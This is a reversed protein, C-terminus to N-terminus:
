LRRRRFWIVLGLILIVEPILLALSNFAAFTKEPILPAQYLDEVKPRLLIRDERDALYYVANMVLDENYLAGLLRNTAFDIDGFVVVRTEKGSAAQWQVSAGLPFPGRGRRMWGPLATEAAPSGERDEEMEIRSTRDSYLFGRPDAGRLVLPRAGSLVVGTRETLGQVVPHYDTFRNVIPETGKAESGFLSADEDVVVADLASVGIGELLLRPELPRGPESFVLLRGGETLFSSLSDREVPLLEREPAAIVVIECTDPVGAQAALLLESTPFGERELNGRLASLGKAGHGDLAPEGHGRVFCLTTKARMSFDLVTQIIHRETIAPVKRARGGSYFVLQSGSREIQRAMEPSLEHPSVIRLRFRESAQAFREILVREQGSAAPNGAYVADIDVSLEELVQRSFDSLTYIQPETLDWEVTLRSAALLIGGTVIAAIAAHLFARGWARRALGVQRRRVSVVSVLIASIILIAAMLLNGIATPGPEKSLYVGGLGFALAVCALSFLFTPM